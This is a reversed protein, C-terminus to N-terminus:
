KKKLFQLREPAMYIAILALVIATPMYGYTVWRLHEILAATETTHLFYAGVLTSLVGVSAKIELRVKWRYLLAIVAFATVVGILVFLWM